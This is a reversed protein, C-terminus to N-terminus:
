LLTRLLVTGSLLAQRQSLCYVAEPPAGPGTLTHGNCNLTIDNEIVIGHNAGFGLDVTLRCTKRKENWKGELENECDGGDPLSITQTGLPLAGAYASQIPIVFMIVSAVFVVALALSSKNKNMSDGRKHSLTLHFKSKISGIM